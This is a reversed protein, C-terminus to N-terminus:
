SVVARAFQMFFDPFVGVAVSLLATICLPILMSLPAEGQHHHEGHGHAAAPVQGFYAKYVVPVFYAANLITSAILVCLIGVSNADMAGVLLHWKPTGGTPPKTEFHCRSTPAISALETPMRQTNIAEV